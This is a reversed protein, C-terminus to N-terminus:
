AIRNVSTVGIYDSFNKLAQRLNQFLSLSEPPRAHAMLLPDM